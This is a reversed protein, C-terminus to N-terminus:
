GVQDASDFGIVTVDVSTPDRAVGGEDWVVVRVASSSKSYTNVYVKLTTSLGQARVVPTRAFPENFNITYDGTGTKLVTCRFTGETCGTASEAATGTPLSAPVLTFVEIRPNRQSSQINQKM